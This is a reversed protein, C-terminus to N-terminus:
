FLKSFQREKEVEQVYKHLQKNRLHKIFEDSFYEPYPIRKTHVNKIVLEIVNITM